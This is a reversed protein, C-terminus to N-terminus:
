VIILDRPADTLVECGGATVVVDDELRVGGLGDVYAGPEITCVMGAALRDHSVPSVASALEEGGYATTTSARGLRPAEHVELGLGHGSAHLIADGFGHSLLVRRAAADVESALAEARVAALAAVQAARVAEFLSRAEAKVQGVGAMRTLDGCYGDLVGGFDLVVLDGDGLRRDTPRAHPLASNPGSAVITDFAPKVLGARRMADDIDRAVERETRGPAVWRGLDRAVSSLLACARRITEVEWGDKVLRLTEIWRSTGVFARGPSGRQWRELAGLTVHEADVAVRGPGLSGIVEAIASELSGAATVIKVPGLEGAAQASRAAVGYRGDVILWNNGPSSILFGASGDFGSLYRINAPASVVLAAFDDHPTRWVRRLRGSFDPRVPDGM